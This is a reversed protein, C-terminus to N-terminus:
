TGKLGYLLMAKGMFSGNWWCHFSGVCYDALDTALMEPGLSARMKEPNITLTALVGTAIPVCAGLTSSGSFAFILPVTTDGAM